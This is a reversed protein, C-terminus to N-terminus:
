QASPGLLEIDTINRKPWMFGEQGDSCKRDWAWANALNEEQTGDITKKIYKGIIPM